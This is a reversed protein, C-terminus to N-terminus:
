GPLTNTSQLLAALAKLQKRLRVGDGPTESFIAKAGGALLRALETGPVTSPVECKSRCDPM